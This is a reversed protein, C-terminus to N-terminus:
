YDSRERQYWELWGERPAEMRLFWEARRRVRAAPLFGAHEFCRRARENWELTHLYIVQFQETVFLHHLFAIAAERGLGRGRYDPRGIVMGFEAALRREDANYYMINGIHTGQEDDLAFLRRRPDITSLDNEFRRLFEGFTTSLPKAADYRAIEPDRRWLFDDFADGPLKHRVRVGRGVAVHAGDVAGTM